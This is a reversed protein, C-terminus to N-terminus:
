LSKLIERITEAEPSDKDIELFKKFSVVANPIDGKNLYAYGLKVYPVAWDPKIESALKYYKVAGDPNNNGFYIEGVNYALIEDKPNLKISSEFYFRAGQLDNNLVYIEGLGAFGKAALEKNYNREKESTILIYRIKAEDYRKMEKLCNGIFLNIETKEPYKVAFKNFFELAKEFKKQKYLELGKEVSALEKKLIEKKSVKLKLNTFPNRNMQSVLLRKTLSDYGETEATIDYKGYGLGIFSWEGKKDTTVKRVSGEEDLFTLTIEVGELPTNKENTVNGKLRGIGRGAQSYSLSSILILVLLIWIMKFLINKM